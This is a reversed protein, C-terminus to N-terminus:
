ELQKFDIYVGKPDPKEHDEERIHNLLSDALAQFKSNWNDTQIASNHAVSNPHQKTENM